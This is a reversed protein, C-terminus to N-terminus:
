IQLAARLQVRVLMEEGSSCEAAEGQPTTVLPVPRAEVWQPYYLQRHAENDEVSDRTLFSHYMKEEPLLSCLNAAVGTRSEMYDSRRLTPPIM